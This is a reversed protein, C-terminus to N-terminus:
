ASEIRVMARHLAGADVPFPVARELDLYGLTREALERGEAGEIDRIGVESFSTPVGWRKYWGLMEELSVATDPDLACQVLVGLGVAEGHLVAAPDVMHSLAYGVAHSFSRGFFRAGLEGALGAGSICAEVVRSYADSTEGRLNDSVAREGLPFLVDDPLSRCVALSLRASVTPIGNRSALLTDFAQALADVIGSCLLRSPATITLEPDIIMAEVPRSLRRSEIYAGSDAHLITLPTYAACTAAVTPLTVCPIGLAEAAAKATDIAKGGGIGVIVGSGRAEEVVAGIAEETCEGTFPRVRVSALLRDLSSVARDAARLGRKGGLIFGRRAIPAVVDGIELSSGCGFIYRVPSFLYTRSM